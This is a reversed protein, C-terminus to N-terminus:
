KAKDERPSETDVRSKRQRTKATGKSMTHGKGERSDGKKVNDDIYIYIYINANTKGKGHRRHDKAKVDVSLYGKQRTAM